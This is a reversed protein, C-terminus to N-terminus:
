NPAQSWGSRIDTSYGLNQLSYGDWDFTKGQHGGVDGSSPDVLEIAKGVVDWEAVPKTEWIGLVRRPKVDSTSIAVLQRIDDGREVVSRIRWWKRCREAAVADPTVGSVVDRVEDIKMPSVKVIISKRLDRYNLSGERQAVLPVLDSTGKMGSRNTLAVGHAGADALVRILLSEALEADHRSDFPIPTIRVDSSFALAENYDDNHTEYPRQRSGIGVYSVRGQADYLVYVYANEAM